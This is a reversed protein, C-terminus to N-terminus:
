WTCLGGRSLSACPATHELLGPLKPLHHACHQPFVEADSSHCGLCPPVGAGWPLIGGSEHFAPWVPSREDPQRHYVPPASHPGATAGARLSCPSHPKDHDLSWGQRHWRGACLCCLTHFAMGPFCRAWRLDLGRWLLWCGARWRRTCPYPVGYGEDGLAVGM